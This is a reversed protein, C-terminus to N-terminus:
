MEKEFKLSFVEFLAAVIVPSLYVASGLKLLLRLYRVKLERRNIYRLTVPELLSPNGEDGGEQAPNSCVSLGEQSNTSISSFSAPTAVL